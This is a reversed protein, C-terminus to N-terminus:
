GAGKSLRDLFDFAVVASGVPGLMVLQRGDETVRRWIICVALDNDFNFGIKGGRSNADYCHETARSFITDWYADLSYGEALLRSLKRWHHGLGNLLVSHCPSFTLQRHDVKWFRLKSTCVELQNVSNKKPVVFGTLNHAAHMKGSQMKGVM